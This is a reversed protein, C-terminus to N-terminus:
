VGSTVFSTSAPSPRELSADAPEHHGGGVFDARKAADDYSLLSFPGVEGPRHCGACNKLLIPAIHKAYTVKAATTDKAAVRAAGLAGLVAALVFWSLRPSRRSGNTMVWDKFKIHERGWHGRGSEAAASSGMM